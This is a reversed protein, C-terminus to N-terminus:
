DTRLAAVPDLRTARRAPVWAALASIGFFTMAVLAFTMPDLPHVGFVMAHLYRTAVAAGALGILIGASTLALAQGLVLALVQRREAGLAMRVGLEKTRRRVSDSILVYVGVAAFALAVVAFAVSLWLNFSRSARQGALREAMTSLRSVALSADLARVTERITRVQNLPDGDTRVVYNSFTATTSQEFPVYV